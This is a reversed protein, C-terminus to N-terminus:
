SPAPPEPTAADTRDGTVVRAMAARYEPNPMGVPVRVVFARASAFRPALLTSWAAAGWSPTLPPRSAITRNVSTWTAHRGLEAHEADLIRASLAAAGDPGIADVRLDPDGTRFVLYVRRLPASEAVPGYLARPDIARRVRAPTGRRAIWHLRDLASRGDLLRRELEPDGAVNYAYIKPWSANLHVVGHADVGVMDDALFRYGSGRALELSLSTKGVGGTGGVVVGGGDPAALASGHVFLLRDPFFMQATGVLMLEHLHKGADDRPRHFEANRLQRVLARVPEHIVMEVDVHTPRRRWRATLFPGFDAEFGDDLERHISPNMAFPRAPPLTELVSVRIDVADGADLRRYASTERELVARVRADRADVSVGLPGFRFRM